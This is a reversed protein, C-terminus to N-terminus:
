PRRRAHRRGPQWAAIAAAADAATLCLPKECFVHKGAAAAAQIQQAHQSHPTCLIIADLAPDALLAALDAAFTLANEHAFAAAAPNLDAAATIRLRDSGALTAVITRGWWGLGVIGARLAGKHEHTGILANWNPSAKDM